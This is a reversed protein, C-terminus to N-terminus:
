ALMVESNIPPRHYPRNSCGCVAKVLMFLGVLLVSATLALFLWFLVVMKTQPGPYALTIEDDKWHQVWCKREQGLLYKDRAHSHCPLDNYSCYYSEQWSTHNLTWTWSFSSINGVVINCTYLGRSCGGVDCCYYGLGYNYNPTMTTPDLELVPRISRCAIPTGYCSRPCHCNDLIAGFLNDEGYGSVHCIHQPAPAGIWDYLSRGNAPADLLFIGAFLGFIAATALCLYIKLLHGRNM